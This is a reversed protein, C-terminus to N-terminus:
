SQNVHHAHAHAHLIVISIRLPICIHNQYTDHEGHIGSEESLCECIRVLEMAQM